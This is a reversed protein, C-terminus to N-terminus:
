GNNHAWYQAAHVYTIVVRDSMHQWVVVGGDAMDGDADWLCLARTNLFDYLSTGYNNRITSDAVGPGIHGDDSVWIHSFSAGWMVPAALGNAIGPSLDLRQVTGDGLSLPTGGRWDVPFELHDYPTTCVSYSTGSPSYLMQTYELDFKNAGFEEILNPATRLSAVPLPPATYPPAPRRPSASPTLVSHWRDWFHWYVANGRPIVLELQEAGPVTSAADAAPHGKSPDHGPVRLITLTVSTDEGGIVAHKIDDITWNNIPQGCAKQSDSTWDRLPARAGSCPESIVPCTCPLRAVKGDVKVLYDGVM